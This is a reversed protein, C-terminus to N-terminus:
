NCHLGGNVDITSGTIYAALDSALFVAAGAIDDVSAARKLPISNTWAKLQEENLAATMDTAVFGPAICNVTIGRSGVEKALSKSFGILGAKAAAYNCQGANGDQGVISSINIIRGARKKMMPGIALKCMQVCAFLNCQLVDSWDQDKMRMFLTDRTIGANNIIIDPCAGADAVVANFCDEVTQKDLSNMVFGKGHGNLYETIGAAGKESTATGYVTAGLQEFAQAIGKGIGRSAGTVLVIKGSFDLNFM